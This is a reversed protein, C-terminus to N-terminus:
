GALSQPFEIEGMIFGLHLADSCNDKVAHMVDYFYCKACVDCHVRFRVFEDFKRCLRSTNNDRNRFGSLGLAVIM